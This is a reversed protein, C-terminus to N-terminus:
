KEKEESLKKRFAEIIAVPLQVLLPYGINAAAVLALTNTIVQYLGGDLGAAVGASVIVLIGRWATSPIMQKGKKIFFGKIWELVGVTVAAASIIVYWNFEPM